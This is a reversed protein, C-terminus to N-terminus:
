VQRTGWRVFERTQLFRMSQGLIRVGGEFALAASERGDLRVPSSVFASM